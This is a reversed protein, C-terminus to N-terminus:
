KKVFNATIRGLMNIQDESLKSKNFNQRRFLEALDQLIKIQDGSLSNTNVTNSSEFGALYDMSVNFICAFDRMIEFSPTQLNNEYRSIIGKDRNIKAGLQEQSMHSKTRLNKLIVGLDYPEHVIIM